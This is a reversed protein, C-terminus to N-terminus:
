QGLAGAARAKPILGLQILINRIDAEKQKFALCETLHQSVPALLSFLFVVVTTGWLLYPHSLSKKLLGCYILSAALAEAGMLILGTEAHALNWEDKTNRNFVDGRRIATYAPICLWKPVGLSRLWVAPNTSRSTDKWGKTILLWIACLLAHHCPIVLSRHCAYIGAGMVVAALAAFEWGVAAFVNKVTDADIISAIVVLIFGGYSYRLIRSLGIGLERLLELVEKM